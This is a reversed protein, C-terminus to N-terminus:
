CLDLVCVSYTYKYYMWIRVDYKCLPIAGSCHCRFRFLCRSYIHHLIYIYIYEYTCIRFLHISPYSLSPYSLVSIASSHAPLYTPKHWSTFIPIITIKCGVVILLYLFAIAFSEIINSKSWAHIKNKRARKWFDKAEGQRREPGKQRHRILASLCHFAALACLQSNPFQAKKCCVVQGPRPLHYLVLLHVPSKVASRKNSPSQSINYKSTNQTSQVHSISVLQNINPSGLYIDLLRQESMIPNRWWPSPEDFQTPFYSQQPKDWFQTGFKTTSFSM